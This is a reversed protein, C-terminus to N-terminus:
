VLGGPAGPAGPAGAPGPTGDSCAWDLGNWAMVQGSNCDLPFLDDALRKLFAAM